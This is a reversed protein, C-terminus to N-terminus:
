DVAKLQNGLANQDIEFLIVSMPQSSVLFVKNLMGYIKHLSM